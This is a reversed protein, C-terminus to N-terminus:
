HSVHRDPDYIAHIREEFQVALEVAEVEIEYDRAVSAVSDGAAVYSWLTATRFRTGDLCPAGFQLVPTTTIGPVIEWSAAQGGPAFRLRARVLPLWDQVQAVATNHDPARIGHERLDHWAKNLLDGDASWFADWTFPREVDLVRALWRQIQEVAALSVGAARWLFLAQATVMDDFNLVYRGRPVHLRGYLLGRRKWARLRAISPPHRNVIAEPLGVTLYAAARGLPCVGDYQYVQGADDGDEDDTDTADDDYAVQPTAVM